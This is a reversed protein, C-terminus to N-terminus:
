IASQLVMTQCSGADWGDPVHTIRMVGHGQSKM